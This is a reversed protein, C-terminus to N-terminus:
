NIQETEQMVQMDGEEKKEKYDISQSIYKM